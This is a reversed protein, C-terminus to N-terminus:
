VEPLNGCPKKGRYQIVPLQRPLLETQPFTRQLDESGFLYLLLQKRVQPVGFEYILHVVPKNIVILHLGPKKPHRFFYAGMKYLEQYLYLLEPTRCDEILYLM